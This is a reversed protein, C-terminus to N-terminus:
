WNGFNPRGRGCGKFATHTLQICNILLSKRWLINAKHTKFFGYYVPQYIRAKTAALLSEAEIATAATLFLLAPPVPFAPYTKGYRPKQKNTELILSTTQHVHGYEDVKNNAM